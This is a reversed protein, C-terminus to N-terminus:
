REEEMVLDPEYVAENQYRNVITPLVTKALSDWHPVSIDAKYPFDENSVKACGNMLQVNVIEEIEPNQAISFWLNDDISIKEVKSTGSVKNIGSILDNLQDKTIM